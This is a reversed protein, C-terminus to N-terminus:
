CRRTNIVYMGALATDNHKTARACDTCIVDDQDGHYWFHQDNDKLEKKGCIFCDM